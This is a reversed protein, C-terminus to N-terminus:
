QVAMLWIDAETVRRSYYAERGDRTLRPPGVVDRTVSFIKRTKKSAIDQILFTKGGSVFLLRRSDPLFVPWEGSADLEDFRGDSLSYTVVGKLSEGAVGALLRGDPSWSNPSFRRRPNELDPIVQPHQEKWPRNPDFIRANGGLVGAALRSGDPSFVSGWMNRGESVQSLESGDPRVKWVEFFGSRNSFCFLWKGDPSWRPMRDIARDSTVQRLGTGDARVVFVDGEPQVLSYFAIWQGDPGPDPSSWSQSGTTLWVPEGKVNGTSPDLSLKQINATKLVSSYALRRGDASISPHAVFTAPTTVPEADGIT